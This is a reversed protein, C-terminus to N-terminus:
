ADSLAAPATSDSSTQCWIIPRTPYPDGTNPQGWKFPEQPPYGPCPQPQNAGVVKLMLFMMERQLSEFDAELAAVKEELEAIRESKKM